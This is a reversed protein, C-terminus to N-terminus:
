SIRLDKYVRISDMKDDMVHFDCTQANAIACMCKILQMIQPIM